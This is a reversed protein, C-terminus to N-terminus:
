PADESPASAAQAQAAARADLDERFFDVLAESTLLPEELLIWHSAEPVRVVNEAGIYRATIMANELPIFRDQEGWVVRLPVAPRGDEPIGSVPVYDARYTGLMSSFANDRAWAAEYVRLEAPTFTGPRSTDVLNRRLLYYGGSRGVLEPLWPLRFFSRFWSISDSDDQPRADQWALPHGTNFVLVRRLREPREFALRWAM